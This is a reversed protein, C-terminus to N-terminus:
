RNLFIVWKDPISLDQALDIARGYDSLAAPLDGKAILVNARNSWAYVYGPAYKVVQERARGVALPRHSSAEAGPCGHPLIVARTAPFFNSPFTSRSGHETM